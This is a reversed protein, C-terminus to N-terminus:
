LVFLNLETIPPREAKEFALIQSEVFTPKYPELHACKEQRLALWQRLRPGADIGDTSACEPSSAAASGALLSAICAAAVGHKM